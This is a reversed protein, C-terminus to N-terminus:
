FMLLIRFGNELSNQVGGGDQWFGHIRYHFLMSIKGRLNSSNFFSSSYTFTKLILKQSIDGYNIMKKFLTMSCVINLM